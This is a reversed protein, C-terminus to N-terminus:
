MTILTYHFSIIHLICFYLYNSIVKMVQIKLLFLENEIGVSEHKKVNVEQVQFHYFSSGVSNFVYFIIKKLSQKHM